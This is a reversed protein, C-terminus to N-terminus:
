SEAEICVGLQKAARALRFRITGHSVKQLEGLDEESFKLIKTALLAIIEEPRAQRTFKNWVAIAKADINLLQNAWNMAPSAKDNKNVVSRQRQGLIQKSYQSWLELAKQLAQKRILKDEISNPISNPTVAKSGMLQYKTKLHAIVSQANQIALREDLTSLLFFLYIEESLELERSFNM